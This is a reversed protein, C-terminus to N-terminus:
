IEIVLNTIKEYFNSLDTAQTNKSIFDSFDICPQSKPVGLSM